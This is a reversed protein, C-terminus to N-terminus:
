NLKKLGYIEQKMREQERRNEEKRKEWELSRLWQEYVERPMEQFGTAAVRQESGELKQYAAYLLPYKPYDDAPPNGWVARARLFAAYDRNATEMLATTNQPDIELIKRIMQDALDDYRRTKMLYTLLLDGLCQAYLKRSSLTDLYTGNKLASANIYTSQMLWLQTVLNGNTAEFNYRQGRPDFYQVFSHNPALSLYAKANLQEALCLYVLPMSHCQGTGTRFLKMVFMKTWDKDGMYDEFDYRLKPVTYQRRTASDYFSNDQSYLKQIAYNVAIGNKESLGERKLIQRVLGARKAISKEFQDWGPRSASDYFASESLYVAKAISFHDPDLELFASFNRQFDMVWAARLEEQALEIENAPRERVPSTGM